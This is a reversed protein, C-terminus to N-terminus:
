RGAAPDLPAPDPRPPAAAPAPPRAKQPPPAAPADTAAAPPKPQPPATPAASTAAPPKPPAAAPEASVPPAPPRTAEHADWRRRFEDPLDELRPYVDKKTVVQTCLICQHLGGDVPRVWQIHHSCTLV